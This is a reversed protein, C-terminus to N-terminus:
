AIINYLSIDHLAVRIIEFMIHFKDQFVRTKITGKNNSNRASKSTLTSIAYTTSDASLIILGTALNQLKKSLIYIEITLKIGKFFKYGIILNNINRVISTHFFLLTILNDKIIDEVIM